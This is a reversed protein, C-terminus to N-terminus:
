SQAMPLQSQQEVISFCSMGRTCGAAISSRLEKGDAALWSQQKDSLSLGYVKIVLSLFRQTNVLFLLRPLQARSTPEQASPRFHSALCEVQNIVYRHISSLSGDGGALIAMLVLPMSYIQGRKDRLDLDTQQQLLHSFTNNEAQLSHTPSM